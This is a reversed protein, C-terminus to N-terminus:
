PAEIRVCEANTNAGKSGRKRREAVEKKV